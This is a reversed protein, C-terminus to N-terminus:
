LRDLPDDVGASLVVAPEAIAVKQGLAGLHDAVGARSGVHERAAAVVHVAQPRLQLLLEVAGHGGQRRTPEVAAVVGQVEAAGHHLHLVQAARVRRTIHHDPQRPLAHREAAIDHVHVAHQAHQRDAVGAAPQLAERRQLGQLGLADHGAVALHAIQGGGLGV